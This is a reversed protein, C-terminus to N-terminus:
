DTIEVEYKYLANYLKSPILNKYMDAKQKILNEKYNKYTLYADIENTFRGLYINKKEGNSCWSEFCEDRTHWIVGIPHDGRAIDSKTFLCNINSPVFCCKDPSYIKNHKYLIDKDLEMIDDKVDYYNEIFWLHFNYYSHWEECVECDIYSKNNKIKNGYCRQLMASWIMYDKKLIGNERIQLDCGLFGVGYKTPHFPNNIHGDKFKNYGTHVISKNDDIFQVEIDKNKNYKIIRMLYGQYNVKEEGIREIKARQIKIM